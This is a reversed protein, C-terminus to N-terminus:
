GGLGAMRERYAAAAEAILEACTELPVVTSDLVM